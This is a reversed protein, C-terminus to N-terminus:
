HKPVAEYMASANLPNLIQAVAFVGMTLMYGDLVRPRITEM